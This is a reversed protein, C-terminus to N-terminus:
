ERVIRLPCLVHTGCGETKLTRTKRRHAVGQSAMIAATIKVEHGKTTVASAREESRPARAIAKHSYKVLYTGPMSELQDAIHDHRFVDV